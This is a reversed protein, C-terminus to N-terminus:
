LAKFKFKELVTRRLMSNPERTEERGVKRHASCGLCSIQLVQHFLSPPFTVALFFPM